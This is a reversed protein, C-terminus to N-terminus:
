CEGIAESLAEQLARGVLEAKRKGEGPCVKEMPEAACDTFVRIGTCFSHFFYQDGFSVDEDIHEALRVACESLAGKALATTQVFCDVADLLHHFKTDNCLWNIVDSSVRRTLEIDMCGYSQVGNICTSLDTYNVCLKNKFDFLSSKNIFATVDYMQSDRLKTTMNMALLQLAARPDFDVQVLAGRPISLNAQVYEDMCQDLGNSANQCTENFLDIIADIIPLEPPEQCCYARGEREVCDYNDPCDTPDNEKRFFYGCTQQRDTTSNRYPKGIACHKKNELLFTTPCCRGIRYEKSEVCTINDGFSACTDAIAECRESWIPTFRYDDTVALAPPDDNPCRWVDDYRNSYATNCCVYFSIISDQDSAEECRFGSPCTLATCTQAIYVFGSDDV